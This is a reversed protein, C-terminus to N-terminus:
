IIPSLQISILFFWIQLSSPCLYNWSIKPKVHNVSFIDGQWNSIKLFSSINVQTDLYSPILSFIKRTKPNAVYYEFGLINLYLSFNSLM